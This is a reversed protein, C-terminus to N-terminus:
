IEGSIGDILDSFSQRQFLKQHRFFLLKWPEGWSRSINSGVRSNRRCKKPCQTLSPLDNLRRCRQADADLGSRSCPTSRWLKAGAGAAGDLAREILQLLRRGSRVQNASDDAVVALERDIQILPREGADADIRRRDGARGQRQAHEPCRITVVLASILETVL